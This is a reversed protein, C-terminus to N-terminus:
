LEEYRRSLEQIEGLCPYCWTTFVFLLVPRGRLASMTVNGGGVKELTLALPPAKERAAPPVRPDQEKACASLLSLALLSALLKAVPAHGLDSASVRETHIPAPSRM